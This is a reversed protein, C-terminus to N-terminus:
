QLAEKPLWYSMVHVKKGEANVVPVKKREPPYGIIGEIDSIRAGLRFCNFKHLAELPTITNGERMYALIRATQTQSNLENPNNNIKSM